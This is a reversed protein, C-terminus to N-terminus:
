SVFSVHATQIQPSSINEEARSWESISLDVEVGEWSLGVTTEETETEEAAGTVSIKCMNESSPLSKSQLNLM